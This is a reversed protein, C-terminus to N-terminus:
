QESIEKLKDLAGPYTKNFFDLYEDITDIEVTVTTIGRSEDFSYNEYGGAWKEVQEGTTVETDGDLFGYHRISVFKAPKHEEIESVMGGKKGNEDVGVFLIKSGKDWSGEYTSTPNFTATWYEYTKKNKLGLMTEYVKQASANIEKEFKLRKM